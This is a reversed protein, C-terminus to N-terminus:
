KKSKKKGKPSEPAIKIGTVLPTTVYKDVVAASIENMSRKVAQKGAEKAAEKIWNPNAANIKNIKSIADTRSNVFKLDAESLSNAGGKKAEALLRKYKEGSTEPGSPKKPADDDSSKGSRLESKSRRIGWKMGKIGYDLKDAEELTLSGSYEGVLDDHEVIGEISLDDVFGEGDVVLVFAMGDYSDEPTEDLDAHQIARAKKADAKAIKGQQKVIKRNTRPRVIATITGDPHRHVAVESLRSPPFKHVKYAAKDLSNELINKLESDYRSRALADKKINIGREKYDKKLKKTLRRAERAAKRSVKALKPNSEVKALWKADKQALYGKRESPALKQLDRRVGWKMGKVGYDLKDEPDVKFSAVYDKSM